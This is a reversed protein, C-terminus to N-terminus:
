SYATPERYLKTLDRHIRATCMKTPNEFPLVDVVVKSKKTVPPPPKTGNGGDGGHAPPGNETGNTDSLLGSAYKQLTTTDIEPDDSRHIWKSVTDKSSSTGYATSTRTKKNGTNFHEL